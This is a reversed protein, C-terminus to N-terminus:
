VHEDAREFGQREAFDFPLLQKSSFYVSVAMQSQM